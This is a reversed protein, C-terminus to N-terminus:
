IKTKEIVTELEGLYELSNFTTQSLRTRDENSIKRRNLENAIELEITKDLNNLNKHLEWNVIESIDGIILKERSIMKLLQDFQEYLRPIDKERARKLLPSTRFNEYKQEVRVFNDFHNIAYLLKILAPALSDATEPRKGSKKLPRDKAYRHIKGVFDLKIELEMKFERIQWELMDEQEAWKSTYYEINARSHVIQGIRGTKLLIKLYKHYTAISVPNEAKNGNSDGTKRGVDDDKGGTVYAELEGARSQGHLNLYGLIYKKCREGTSIESRKEQM